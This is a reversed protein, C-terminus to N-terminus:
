AEHGDNWDFGRGKKNEIIKDNLSQGETETLPYKREVGNDKMGRDFNTIFTRLIEMREGLVKKDQYRQNLEFTKLLNEKTFREPPYLKRNRCKKGEPNTFTIYKREDTWEVDYGISNLNSIFQDKNTSNRMCENVTLYLEHKWSQGKTESRYQGRKRNSGKLGDVIQLGNERCLKDSSDKIQQLTERSQKWKLGTNKNVTDIIFHTHLHDKDTHTASVVQFGEFFETKMLKNGMMRVMEPTVNEYTAFSQVFHIFQRGTEKQYSKKNRVFEFYANEPDCNHGSVLEACTKALNLIYNIARKMGQYTKNKANIFDIIAM